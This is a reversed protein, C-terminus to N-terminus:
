NKKEESNNKRKNIKLKKKIKKKMRHDPRISRGDVHWSRELVEITRALGFGHRALGEHLAGLQLTTPVYSVVIGGPRLAARVAGLAREPEPLDLMARDLGSEAVGDTVDGVHVTLPQGPGLAVEVNTTAREAFDQRLEYGVVSAGVGLLAMTTAGSGLGSELVTTGPHVDLLMLIPGLDKPYIVQAGRPMELVRDALTPRLALLRSGKASRAVSGEAAGILADHELAGLHSHFTGGPELQVMYRRRKRDVLLVWEGARFRGCPTSREADVTPGSGEGASRSAESPDSM